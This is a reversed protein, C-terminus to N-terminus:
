VGPRARRSLDNIARDLKRVRSPRPRLILAPAPPSEWMPRLVRVGERKVSWMCSLIAARTPRDAANSLGRNPSIDGAAPAGGASVVRSWDAQGYLADATPPAQGNTGTALSCSRSEGVLSAIARCAGLLNRPWCRWCFPHICWDRRRIVSPFHHLRWNRHSRAWGRHELTVRNNSAPTRAPVLRM